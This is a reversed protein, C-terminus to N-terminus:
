KMVDNRYHTPPPQNLGGGTFIPNFVLSGSFGGGGPAVNNKTKRLTKSVEDVTIKEELRCSEEESIKRVNGINKM